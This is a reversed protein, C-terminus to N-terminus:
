TRLDRRHYYFYTGVSFLAVIVVSILAIWIDLGEGNVIPVMNFYKFPSFINLFSVKVNLDTVKSIVYGALIIGTAISGSLKPRKTVAALLTGLSMFILQVLFMSLMFALIEGTVDEGKNYVSVTALSSLLTVINIVVVNFLAALLKSTIITYRSVPKVMLYETTKDREEKAIIGNGLLAAHFAVMIELYPFLFAFFGAMKTVDFSGLGLVAKLGQPMDNFVTAMADGSSYVEYKSMGSFVFLIMCVSWIILAKRNAKLERLFINM